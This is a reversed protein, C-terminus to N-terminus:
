TDSAGEFIAFFSVDWFDKFMTGLSVFSDKTIGQTVGTFASLVSIVIMSILVSGKVNFHRLVGIIIVGLVTLLAAIQATGFNESNFSLFQLLTSDSGIILGSNKFGLFGIFIGIGVGIGVSLNQPIAKIIKERIGSVSCIIFLIGALFNLFLAVGYSYGLKIM